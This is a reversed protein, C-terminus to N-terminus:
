GSAFGARPPTGNLFEEVNTYGDADADRSGDAPNEPDFGHEREWADPMGDRDTDAPAAASRYDPWGGVETQSHIISGSRARVSAVVREDVPDRKPLTAGVHELVPELISDASTTTVGSPAFVWESARWKPDGNVALWDDGTDNPRGPGINNRVLFRSGDTLHARSITIGRRTGSQPGPLYLNALLHAHSPGSKELDGMATAQSGWNYVVNNIVETSTGGKLLPSRADNHAFLCHHVSVRQAHDGVLLGMGHPGKPHRSRHLSESILCWQLTVDHCPYWLQLNEDIAWSISCHDFIIAFPATRRNAIGLSDRNEPDPGDEADGVRFRLHRIIVDHTQVVLGAGRVCIGDGPATQGAVTVFPETIALPRTLAIVGGVRFVVIRPGAASLAAHLSGPGDANLNTVPIVRGGRGGPTRSGFGEAGPFSPVAPTPDAAAVALTLAFWGLLGALSRAHTSGSRLM